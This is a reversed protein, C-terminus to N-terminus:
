PDKNMGTARTMSWSPLPDPKANMISAAEIPSGAVPAPRNLTSQTSV